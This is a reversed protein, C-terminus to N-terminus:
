HAHPVDEFTTSRLFAWVQDVCAAATNISGVSTLWEGHMMVHIVGDAQVRGGLFRVLQHGVRIAMEVLDRRGAQTEERYVSRPSTGVHREVLERFGDEFSLGDIKVVMPFHFSIERVHIIDGLRNGPDHIVDSRRIRIPIAMGGIWARAKRGISNKINAIVAGLFEIPKYFDEFLSASSCRDLVEHRELGTVDHLGECVDIVEFQSHVEGRGSWQFDTDRSEDIPIALIMSHGLPM